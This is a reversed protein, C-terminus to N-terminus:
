AITCAEMKDTYNTEDPFEQNNRVSWTRRTTGSVSIFGM